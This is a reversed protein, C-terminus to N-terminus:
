LRNPRPAHHTPIPTAPTVDACGGAGDNLASVEIQWDAYYMTKNSSPGVVGTSIQRTYGNVPNASRTTSLGTTKCTAYVEEDVGAIGVQWDTIGDGNADIEVLWGYQDWTTGTGPNDNLLLRFFLNVGDSYFYASNWDGVVDKNGHSSVDTSSPSQDGNLDRFPNGSVDKYAYADSSSTNPWISVDPWTSPAAASPLPSALLLAMLASVCLLKVFRAKPTPKMAGM